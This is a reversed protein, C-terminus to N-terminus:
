YLPPPPQLTNMFQHKHPGARTPNDFVATTGIRRPTYNYYAPHPSFTGSFPRPNRAKSRLRKARYKWPSFKTTPKHPTPASPRSSHTATPPSSSSNAPDSLPAPRYFEVAIWNYNPKDNPRWPGIRTIENWPVTRTKWLRREFLGSDDIRWWTFFYMVFYSIGILMQIIGAFSHDQGNGDHLHKHFSLLGIGMWILAVVLQFWAFRSRFRM